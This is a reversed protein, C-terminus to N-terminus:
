KSQGPAMCSIVEEAEGSPLVSSPDIQYDVITRTLLDAQGGSILTEGDANVYDTFNDLDSGLDVAVPTGPGTFWAQGNVDIYVGAPLRLADINAKGSM